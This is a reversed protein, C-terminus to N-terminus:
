NKIKMEFNCNVCDYSIFEGYCHIIAERKKIQKSPEDIAKKTVNVSSCIWSGNEEREIWGNLIDGVHLNELNFLKNRFLLGNGKYYLTIDLM